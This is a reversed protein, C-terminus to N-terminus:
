SLIAMLQSEIRVWEHRQRKKGILHITVGNARGKGDLLKEITIFIKRNPVTRGTPINNYGSLHLNERKPLTL